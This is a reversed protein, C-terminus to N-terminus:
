LYKFLGKKRPNFYCYKDFYRHLFKIQGTDTNLESLIYKKGCVKCILDM